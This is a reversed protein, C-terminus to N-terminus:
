ATAEWLTPQDPEAQAHADELAQAAETLVAAADRLQDPDTWWCAVQLSVRHPWRDDPAILDARIAEDGPRDSRTWGWRALPAANCQRPTM